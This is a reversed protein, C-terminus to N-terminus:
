RGDWCNTNWDTVMCMTFCGLGYEITTDYVSINFVAALIWIYFGWDVHKGFALREGHAKSCNM